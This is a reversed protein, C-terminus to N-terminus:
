DWKFNKLKEGLLDGLTVDNDKDNYDLYNVDSQAADKISLSMRHNNFNIDIIKVKVEDGVKLVDEAKLVREESIDSLHVLGEIGAELEVFAGFNTLNSVRGLVIDNASYKEKINVWPNKDVEKLALSLRNKNKDFDQIYVEVMDGVSVIESPDTVRKWSLDSLHVLGQLGGIDVFAGFKALRVVTGQTKEGIKLKEWLKNAKEEQEIKEVERRSAVVKKRNKDMEIVKVELQRNLFESLDEVRRISLQSAPIFVSTGSIEGIVGGKVVSKINVRILKDGKLSEEFDKWVKISDVRKKSLLVNGEGDNLELVMVDILDNEKFIEKLSTEEDELAEERPIIGDSIYHINVFIEKDTVKIIKGKLIDGTSIKKFDYDGSIFGEMSVEQNELDSM